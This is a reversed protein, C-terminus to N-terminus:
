RHRSRYQDVRSRPYVSPNRTGAGLERGTAAMVTYPPYEDANVFPLIMDPAIPMGASTFSFLDGSTAAADNYLTTVFVLDAQTLVDGNLKQELEDQTLNWLMLNLTNIETDVDLDRGLLDQTLGSWDFTLDSDPAVTIAPFSLRSSFEYNM